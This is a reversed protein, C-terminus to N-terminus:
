VELGNLGDDGVWLERLIKTRIESIKGKARNHSTATLREVVKRWVRVVWNAAIWETSEAKHCALTKKVILKHKVSSQMITRVFVIFDKQHSICAM